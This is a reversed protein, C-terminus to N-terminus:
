PLVCAEADRGRQLETAERFLCLHKRIAISANFIVQGSGAASLIRSRYAPGFLFPDGPAYMRRFPEVEPMRRVSPDTRMHHYKVHELFISERVRRPKAGDSIYRSAIGAPDPSLVVSYGRPSDPISGFVFSIRLEDFEDVAGFRRRWDQFIAAGTDRDKFLLGVRPTDNAPLDYFM